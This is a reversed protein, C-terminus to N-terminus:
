GGKKPVRIQSDIENVLVKVRQLTAETAEPHRGGASRDLQMSLNLLEDFSKRLRQKQEDNLKSFLAQVLGTFYYGYDHIYRFDKRALADNLLREQDRLQVFVGEASHPDLKAPGKAKKCGAGCLGCVAVALGVVIVLNVRM